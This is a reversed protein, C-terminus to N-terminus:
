VQFHSKLGELVTKEYTEKLLKKAQALIADLNDQDDIMDPIEDAIMQWCYWWPEDESDLLAQFCARLSAENTPVPDFYKTNIFNDEIESLQNHAEQQATSIVFQETKHQM